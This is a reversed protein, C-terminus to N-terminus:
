GHTLGGKWEFAGVGCIGKCGYAGVVTIVSVSVGLSGVIQGRRGGGNHVDSLLCMGEWSVRM